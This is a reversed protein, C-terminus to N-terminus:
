SKKTRRFGMLGLLAPAFLWLAAPVPVESITTYLSLHSLDPTQGGNNTFRIAFTGKVSQFSEDFLYAAFGVSGGKLVVVFPGSLSSAYSWFGNTQGNTAFLVNDSDDDSKTLQQWEYGTLSFLDNINNEFGNDNNGATFGCANANTGTATVDTVLCTFSAAYANTGLTVMLLSATIMLQVIIKM